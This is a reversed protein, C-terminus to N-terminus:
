DGFQEFWCKVISGELGTGELIKLEEVKSGGVGGGTKEQRNTVMKAVIPFFVPFFIFLCM